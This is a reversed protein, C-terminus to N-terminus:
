IKRNFIEYIKDVVEAKAARKLGDIIHPEVYKIVSGIVDNAAVGPHWWSIPDSKESIARFTRFQSHKKGKDRINIMGAYPGNQWEYGTSSIFGFENPEAKTGKQDPFKTKHAGVRRMAEKHVSPSMVKGINGTSGPISHRFPIIFVKKGKERAKNLFGPKMDFPGYGNQIRLAEEVGGEGMSIIAQLPIVSFLGGGILQIVDGQLGNFANNGTNNIQRTMGPLFGGNYCSAWVNRVANAIRELEGYTYNTM